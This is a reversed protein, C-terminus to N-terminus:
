LKLAFVTGNGTAGGGSTTGYLTGKLATLGAVPSAGDSDNGFSHLVKEGGTLSMRFVTGKGYTGGGTTTGYLAGKVEILPGTPGSGDSGKGFDHLDTLTGGTTISFAIGGGDPGGGAATGYLTGNVNILGANPCCGQAGGYPFSYLINETGTPTVSFVVGDGIGRSGYNSGGATTTGYLLGNLSVLGGEPWAGDSQGGYFGHLVREVGKTTLSYVTGRGWKGGDTTLGYFTHNVYILVSAQGDAGDSPSGHFSYLVSEGGSRTIAYIVGWNYVGNGPAMGYLTGNVDVLNGEPNSGDLPGGFSHLMQETGNPSLSFVNGQGFAGGLATTGYLTGKVDLLGGDPYSGDYVSNFDTVIRYKAAKPGHAFAIGAPAPLNSGTGTCSALLAAGLCIASANYFQNM